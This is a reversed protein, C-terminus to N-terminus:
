CASIGFGLQLESVRLYQNVSGAVDASLREAPFGKLRLREAADIGGHNKSEVM